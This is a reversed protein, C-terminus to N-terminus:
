AMVHAVARSRLADPAARAIEHGDALGQAVVELVEREVAERLVARKLEVISGYVNSVTGVSVGAKRAVMERTIWQYGVEQALALAAGLVREDRDPLNNAM